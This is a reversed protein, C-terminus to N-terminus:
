HLTAPWKIPYKCSQATVFLPQRFQADMGKDWCVSSWFSAHPAPLHCLCVCELNCLATFALRTNLWPMSLPKFQKGERSNMVWNQTFANDYHAALKSMMAYYVLLVENQKIWGFMQNMVCLLSQCGPWIGRGQMEKPASVSRPLPISPPNQFAGIVLGSWSFVTM